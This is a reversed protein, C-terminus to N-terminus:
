LVTITVPSKFCSLPMELMQVERLILFLRLLKITSLGCDVTKDKITVLSFGYIVEKRWNRCSMTIM